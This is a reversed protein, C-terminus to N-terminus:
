GELHIIEVGPALPPPPMFGFSGWCQVVDEATLGCGVVEAIAEPPLLQATHWGIQSAQLNPLPLGSSLHWQRKM